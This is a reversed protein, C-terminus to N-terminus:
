RTMTITVTRRTLKTLSTTAPSALSTQFPSVVHVGPFYFELILPNSTNM